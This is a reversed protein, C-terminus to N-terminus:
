AQQDRQLCRACVRALELHLAIGGEGRPSRLEQSVVEEEAANMGGGGGLVDAIREAESEALTVYPCPLAPLLHPPLPPSNFPPPVVALKPWGEGVGGGGWEVERRSSHSTPM